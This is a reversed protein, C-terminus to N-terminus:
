ANRFAVLVSLISHLSISGKLKWYISLQFQYTSFQFSNFLVSCCLYFHIWILIIRYGIAHYGLHESDIRSAGSRLEHHQCNLILWTDFSHSDGYCQMVYLVMWTLYYPNYKFGFILAVQDHCPNLNQLIWIQPAPKIKPSRSFRLGIYHKELLTKRLPKLALVSDSDPYVLLM